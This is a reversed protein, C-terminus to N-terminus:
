KISIFLIIRIYFLRVKKFINFNLFFFNKKFLTLISFIFNIHSLFTIGYFNIASLNKFRKILNYDINLIIKKTIKKKTSDEYINKIIRRRYLTLIFIFFTRLKM